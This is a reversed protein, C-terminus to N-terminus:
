GFGVERSMENDKKVDELAESSPLPSTCLSDSLDNEIEEVFFAEGADGLKMQLEVPEGNIEIDVKWLFFCNKIFM